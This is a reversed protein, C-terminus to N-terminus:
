VIRERCGGGGWQGMHLGEWRRQSVSRAREYGGRHRPSLDKLERAWHSCKASASRSYGVHQQTEETCVPNFQLDPTRMPAMM